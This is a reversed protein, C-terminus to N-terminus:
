IYARVLNWKQEDNVMWRTENTPADYAKAAMKSLTLLTERDSVDPADVEIEDWEMVRSEYQVAQVDQLRHANLFRTPDHPRWTKVKTTRILGPSNLAALRPNNSDQHLEYRASLSRYDHLGQHFIDTQKWNHLATRQHPKHLNVCSWLSTITSKAVWVLSFQSARLGQQFLPEYANGFMGYGFTLM